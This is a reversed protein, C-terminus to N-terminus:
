VVSKRDTRQKVVQFKNCIEDGCEDYAIKLRSIIDKWDQLKQKSVNSYNGEPIKILGDYEVNEEYLGVLEFISFGCMQKKHLEIVVGNLSKRLEHLKSATDTYEEPRKTHGVDLTHELQLLVNKKQSKNSHLELCFPALGVESM